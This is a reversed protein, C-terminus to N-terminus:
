TRDRIDLCSRDGGTKASFLFFFINELLRIKPASQLLDCPADNTVLKLDQPNNINNIFNHDDLFIFICFCTRIGSVVQVSPKTSFKTFGDGSLIIVKRM